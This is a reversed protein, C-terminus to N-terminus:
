WTHVEREKSIAETPCEELCILCGKCNDYDAFPFGEANLSICGDPCRAVCTMCQTCADYNWVPKFVRWNGTKRLPTNGSSNIAPSSIVAPEFPMKMVPNKKTAAETTRIEASQVTNFCYLSAEINKKILGSDSTIESVEKEVARKLSDEKLGAIKSAAGGALTSLLTRGLMDLSIKTIDLTIVKADIKYNNKAEAYSHTTNLFVISGEKLGSLPMAMPDDLLTEDMVILIDPDAIVGRELIPERSIRTFAAIPAGRREAGYLPFDQAYYGELFAATGLVRSAVKAGQGGRGHFRIRLM